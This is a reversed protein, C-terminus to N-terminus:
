EELVELKGSPLENSIHEIFVLFQDLFSVDISKNNLKFENKEFIFRYESRSISKSKLLRIEQKSVELVFYGENTPQKRDTILIRQSEGLFEHTKTILTNLQASSLHLGKFNSQDSITQTLEKFQLQNIDLKQM